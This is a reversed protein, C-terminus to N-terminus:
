SIQIRLYLAGRYGLDAASTYLAMAKTCDQPLDLLGKHYSNGQVFIAGADNNVAVRNLILEVEEENTKSGKEAKCFPCKDNNGSMVISYICGYCVSRGCCPYAREEVYITYKWISM